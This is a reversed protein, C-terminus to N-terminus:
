RTAGVWEDLHRPNDNDVADFTAAALALTAHVQAQRECGRAVNTNETKEAIFLLKEAERYHDPGNM